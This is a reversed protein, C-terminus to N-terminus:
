PCDSKLQFFHQMQPKATSLIGNFGVWGDM